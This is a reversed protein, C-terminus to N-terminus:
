EEWSVDFTMENSARDGAAWRRESSQSSKAGLKAYAFETWGNAIPGIGFIPLGRVTVVGKREGTREVQVEINQFYTTWLRPLMGFLHAPKAMALVIKYITSLNDAAVYVGLERLVREATAPDSKCCTEFLARYMADVGAIPYWAFPLPEALDKRHTEPVRALIDRWAADGFTKIIYDRAGRTGTGKGKAGADM